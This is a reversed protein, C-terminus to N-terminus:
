TLRLGAEGRGHVKSCPGSMLSVSLSKSSSVLSGVKMNDDKKILKGCHICQFQGNIRDLVITKVGHESDPDRFVCTVKDRLCLAHHSALSTYPGGCEECHM